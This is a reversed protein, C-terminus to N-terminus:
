YAEDTMEEESLSVVRMPVFDYARSITDPFISFTGKEFAAIAELLHLFRARRDDVMACLVTATLFHM